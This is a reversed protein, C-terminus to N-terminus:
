LGAVASSQEGRLSNFNKIRYARRFRRARLFTLSLRFSGKHEPCDKNDQEHEPQKAERDM